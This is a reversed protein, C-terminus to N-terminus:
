LIASNIVKPDMEKEGSESNVLARLCIPCDKDERELAKTEIEVWREDSLRNLCSDEFHQFIRRFYFCDNKMFKQVITFLDFTLLERSVCLRAGHHSNFSVQFKTM